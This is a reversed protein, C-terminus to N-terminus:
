IIYSTTVYGNKDEEFKARNNMSYKRLYFDAAVLIVEILCVVMFFSCSNPIITEIGSPLLPKNEVDFNWLHSEKIKLYVLKGRSNSWTFHVPNVTGKGWKINSRNM